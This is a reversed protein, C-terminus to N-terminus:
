DLCDAVCRGIRRSIVVHADGWFRSRLNVLWGSSGGGVVVMVMLLLLLRLRAESQCTLCGSIEHLTNTNRTATTLGPWALGPWGIGAAQCSSSSSSWPKAKRKLKIEEHAHEPTSSRLFSRSNIIRDECDFFWIFSLLLPHSHPTSPAANAPSDETYVSPPTTMAVVADGVLLSFNDLFPHTPTLTRFRPRSRSFNPQQGRIGGWVLSRQRIFLQSLLDM